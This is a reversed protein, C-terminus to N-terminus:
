FLEKLMNSILGMSNCMTGIPDDEFFSQFILRGQYNQSKLYPIADLYNTDGMGVYVSPGGVIRDKVHVGFLVPFLIELDQKMDYGRSACNGADYYVGVSQNNFAQILKFYEHAPLETELGIRMNHANLLDACSNIVDILLEREEADQLEAEELVPMLILSVGIEAAKPILQKFIQLYLGDTDRFLPHPLFYDACLSPISVGTENIISLIEVRGPSSWIPNEEFKDAEFIWEIYKIGNEKALRFEDRWLTHPFEQLKPYPRPLLRGQMIGFEM